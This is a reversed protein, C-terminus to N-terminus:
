INLVINRKELVFAKVGMFCCFRRIDLTKVDFFKRLSHLVLKRLCSKKVLDQM